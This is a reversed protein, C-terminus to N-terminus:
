LVLKNKGQDEITKTQKQFSKGLRSYSFKAEEIIQQQTSPVTLIMDYNKM